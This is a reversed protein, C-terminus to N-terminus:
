SSYDARISPQRSTTSYENIFSRNWIVYKCWTDYRRKCSTIPTHRDYQQRDPYNFRAWNPPCVRCIRGCKLGEWGTIASLSIIQQPIRGFNKSKKSRTFKKKKIEGTKKKKKTTGNELWVFQVSEKKYGCLSSKWGKRKTTNKRKKMALSSLVLSPLLLLLLVLVLRLVAVGFCCCSARAQTSTHVHCTQSVPARRLGLWPGPSYWGRLSCSQQPPARRPYVFGATDDARSYPM